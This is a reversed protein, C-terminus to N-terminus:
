NKVKYVTRTRGTGTQSAPGQNVIRNDRMAVTMESGQSTGQKSDEVIAPTGRLIVTEDATTYQAWNGLVRRNPQTIVVDNQVVTKIVENNESLYIDAVGSMLRDTGQRIDVGKEYHLLKEVDNYSITQASAYVPQNVIKGSERRKVSYLLSQVKGAGTFRREKQYIVLEDARVYNNEQWARANGSYVGIESQHDFRVQAATLYVPANPRTFPTAGNTRKQSYYTTSAKGNLFSKQNKVDWDIDVAKARVQSDFVTPEGGRLKVIEDTTTYVMQNAIGSRDAESFKVNGSAEFREANQTSRNFNVVLKESSLNRPFRNSLTPQLVAKARDSAVCQKANSSQEFFDCDFRNANVTTKYNDIAARYPEINLEANGIAEAKVLDRGNNSLTTRIKDAILKKNASKPDNNPANLYITTRGDTQMQALVSRSNGPRFDLRISRPTSLTVKTYDQNGSPIISVNAQNKVDAQLIQQDENFIATLEGASIETTREPTLQSLFANGIVFANQLKRSPFLQATLQEGKILDTGQRIEAGGTLVIKGKAQEYVGERSHITTPQSEATTIIEVNNKLEFKEAATTYTAIQSRIKTTSQNQESTEIEVNERLDVKKLGNEFLAVASDAKITSPTQVVVVNDTLELRDIRRDVFHAVVIEARADTQTENKRSIVVNVNERFTATEALQEVTARGAKIRANQIENEDAVAVDVSRLLELRKELVFIKAGDSNGTINERSFEIKEDSEATETERDYTIMETRVILADRTEILVNGRFEAAFLRSNGANPVYIARNASIKDFKQGAEDYAELYVNELEQHNDSFTTAKDAKIFYKTIEGDTERREFGNIVGTVDKSLQVEENKLIFPKEKTRFISVFIGIVVLVLGLVAFAGLIKPLDARVRISGKNKRNFKEAAEIKEM